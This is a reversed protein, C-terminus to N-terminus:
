APTTSSPTSWRRSTWRRTFLIPKGVDLSELRAFEEARDRLLDAARQLIRGRERPRLRSWGGGDFAARAARVARDVDAAGGAAATTVTAGTSPDLVPQTAGGM